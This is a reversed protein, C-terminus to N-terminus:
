RGARPAFWALARLMSVYIALPFISIISLDSLELLLQAMENNRKQQKRIYIFLQWHRLAAKERGM